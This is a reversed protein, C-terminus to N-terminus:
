AEGWRRRAPGSETYITPSAGEVSLELLIYRDAPNYSALRVAMARTDPDDILTAHGRLTFEGRSGATDTILSHLM